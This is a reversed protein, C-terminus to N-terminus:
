KRFFMGHRCVVFGKDRWAKRRRDYSQNIVLDNLKCCTDKFRRRAQRVRHLYRGIQEWDSANATTLITQWKASAHTSGDQLTLRLQDSVNRAM